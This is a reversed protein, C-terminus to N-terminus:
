RADQRANMRARYLKALREFREKGASDAQQERLVALNSAIRQKYQFMEMGVMRDSIAFARKLMGEAEAPQFDRIMIGLATLTELLFPYDKSVAKEQLDLAKRYDGISSNISGRMSYCRALERSHDQSHNEKGLEYIAIAANIENMAEQNRDTMQYLSALHFKTWALRPNEPGLVKRFIAQTKLLMKETDDPDAYNHQLRYRALMLASKAWELNNEGYTEIAVAMAALYYGEVKERREATFSHGAYGLNHLTRVILDGPSNLRTKLVALVKSLLHEALESNGSEVLSVAVDNANQCLNLLNETKKEGSLLPSDTLANNLATETDACSREFGSRAYNIRRM